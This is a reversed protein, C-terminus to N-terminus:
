GANGEGYDSGGEWVKIWRLKEGEENMEETTEYERKKDMGGEQKGDRRGRRERSLGGGEEALVHGLWGSSLGLHSERGPWTHARVPEKSPHLTPPFCPSPSPSLSLLLLSFSSFSSSCRHDVRLALSARQLHWWPLAASSPFSSSYSYSSIFYGKWWDNPYM